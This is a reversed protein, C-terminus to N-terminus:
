VQGAGHREPIVRGRGGGLAGRAPPSALSPTARGPHDGRSGGAASNGLLPDPYNELREALPLADRRGEGKKQPQLRRRPVATAVEIPAPGRGGTARLARPVREAAAQREASGAGARM